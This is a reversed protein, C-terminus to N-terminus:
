HTSESASVEREPTLPLRIEMSGWRNGVLDHVAFRLFTANVPVFIEQHARLTGSRVRSADILSYMEEASTHEAITTNGDEAFATFLFELEDERNGSKSVAFTLSKRLLSYYVAYRQLKVEDWKNQAAFAPFKALEKIQIDTAPEPLGKPALHVEFVLDHFLPGGHRMAVNVLDVNRLSQPVTTEDSAVYSHRYALHLGKRSLAVRVWRVGGNFNKNTPSYAITYYNAGDETGISIAQHLGNTDYFAHGGSDNAIKEMTDHEAALEEEFQRHQANFSEPSRYIGNNSAGYIANVMLGRVDVPYVAIRGVTFREVTQRIQPGFNVSTGFPDTVDKGPFINIPFSGSLWILNKRGPLGSVFESIQNFAELTKNVRQELLFKDAVSELHQMRDLMGQSTPPVLGSESLQQSTEHGEQSAQYAVSPRARVEKRSMVALLTREDDTIGQLLELRNGLVFVAFRSGRPKNRLFKTVETHGYPMQEVSTNLLDYLIINLPLDDYGTPANMYTNPPLPPLPALKLNATVGSNHAEFFAIQQSKGDEFLSFDERRLGGMPHNQRDTVVVDVLVQRVQSTITTQQKLPAVPSNLTSQQSLSPLGLLTLLASLFAPIKHSSHKKARTFSTSM